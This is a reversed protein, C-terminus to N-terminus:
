AAQVILQVFDCSISVMAFMAGSKVAEAKGNAREDRAIGFKEAWRGAFAGTHGTPEFLNCSEGFSHSSKFGMICCSYMSAPLVNM